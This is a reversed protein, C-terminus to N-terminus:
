TAARGATVSVMSTVAWMSRMVRDETSDIM